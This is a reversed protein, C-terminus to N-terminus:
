HFFACLQCVVVFISCMMSHTLPIDCATKKPFNLLTKPRAERTPTISRKRIRGAPSSTCIMVSPNLSAAYLCTGPLAVLNFAPLCRGPSMSPCITRHNISLHFHHIRVLDRPITPQPSHALTPTVPAADALPVAAAQTHKRWTPRLFSGPTAQDWCHDERM